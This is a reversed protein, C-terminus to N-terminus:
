NHFVRYGFKNTIKYNKKKKNVCIKPFDGCKSQLSQFIEIGDIDAIKKIQKYKTNGKNILILHNKYKINPFFNVNLILESIFRKINEAPM